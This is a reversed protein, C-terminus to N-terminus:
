RMTTLSISRVAEAARLFPEPDVLFRRRCGEGCFYHVHANHREAIAKHPDVRMGCVPDRVEGTFGAQSVSERAPQSGVAATYLRQEGAILGDASLAGERTGAGTGGADGRAAPREAAPHRRM